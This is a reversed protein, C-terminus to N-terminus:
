CKEFLMRRIYYNAMLELAWVFLTPIAAGLMFAKIVTSVSPIILIQLEFLIDLALAFFFAFYYTYRYPELSGKWLM